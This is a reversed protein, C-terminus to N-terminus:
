LQGTNGMRTNASSSIVSLECNSHHYLQFDLALRRDVLKIGGLTSLDPTVEIETIDVGKSAAWDRVLRDFTKPFVHDVHAHFWDIREGTKPCAIQGAEDAHEAFVQDKFTTVYEMVERRLASRVRHGDTEPRICKKWAFPESHGDRFVAFFRKGIPKAKEVGISSLKGDFRDCYDYHRRLLDKMFALDDAMLLFDVPSRDLLEEVYRTLDAKSHFVKGAVVIPGSM